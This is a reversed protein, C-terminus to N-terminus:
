RSTTGPPRSLTQVQSRKRTVSGRPAQSVLAVGTYPWQGPAVVSGRQGSNDRTSQGPTAGIHGLTGPGQGQEPTPYRPSHAAPVSLYCLPLRGHQGPDPGRKPANPTRTTTPSAFVAGHDPHPQGTDRAAPRRPPWLPSSDAGRQVWRSRLPARSTRRRPNMRGSSSPSAPQGTVTTDSGPRLAASPRGCPRGQTRLSLDGPERVIVLRCPCAAAADRQM